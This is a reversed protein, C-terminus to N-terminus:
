PQNFSREQREATNINAKKSELASIARDTEDPVGGQQLINNRRKELKSSCIVVNEFIQGEHDMFSPIGHWVDPRVRAEFIVRLEDGGGDFLRSFKVYESEDFKRM